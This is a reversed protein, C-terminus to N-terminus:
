GIYWGKVGWNGITGLCAFVRIRPIPCGRSWRRMCTMVVWAYAGWYDLMVVKCGGVFVSYIGGSCRMIGGWICGKQTGVEVPHACFCSYRSVGTGGPKALFAGHRADHCRSTVHDPVGIDSNVGVWLCPTSGRWFVGNYWGLRVGFRPPIRGRFLVRRAM